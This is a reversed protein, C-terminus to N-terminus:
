LLPDTDPYSGRGRQRLRKLVRDAEHTEQPTLVGASIWSELTRQHQWGSGPNDDEGYQHMLESDSLMM